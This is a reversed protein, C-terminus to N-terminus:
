NQKQEGLLACIRKSAVSADFDVRRIQILQRSFRHHKFPRIDRVRNACRRPRREHRASPRVDIAARVVAHREVRPKANKRLEHMILIIPGSVDAFPVKALVPRDSASERMVNRGITM